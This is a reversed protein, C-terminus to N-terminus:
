QQSLHSSIGASWAPRRDGLPDTTEEQPSGAEGSVGASTKVLETSSRTEPAELAEGAEAAPEEQEGPLTAEGCQPRSARECAM